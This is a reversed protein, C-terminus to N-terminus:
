EHTAEMVLKNIGKIFAAFSVSRHNEIDLLVGLARAASVKGFGPVIKFVEASPVSIDDPTRFKAKEQQKALQTGFVKDVAQLDALYWSELERCVIRVLTDPKGADACLKM